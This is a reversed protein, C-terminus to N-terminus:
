DWLRLLELRQLTETPIERQQNLLVDYTLGKYISDVRSRLRLFKTEEFDTVLFRYLPISIYCQRLVARIQIERKIRATDGLDRYSLKMPPPPTRGSAARLDRELLQLQDIFDNVSKQDMMNESMKWDEAAWSMLHGSIATSFESNIDLMDLSCDKFKVKLSKAIAGERITWLRQAWQSDRIKILNQEASRRPTNYVSEDLVVTEDARRYVNYLAEFALYQGPATLPICLTDIWFPISGPTSPYLGDVISQLRM